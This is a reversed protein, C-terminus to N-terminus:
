GITALELRYELGNDRWEGWSNLYGESVQCFGVMEHLRISPLNVSHIHSYVSTIGRGKLHDTGTLLLQKEIGRRRYNPDVEIGEVLWRHDCYPSCWLRVVGVIQGHRTTAVVTVKEGPIGENFWSIWFELLERYRDADESSLLLALQEMGAKGPDTWISCSILEM